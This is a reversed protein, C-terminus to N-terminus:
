SETVTSIIMEFRIDFAFIACCTIAFATSRSGISRDHSHARASAVAIMVLGSAMGARVFSFSRAITPFYTFYGHADDDGSGDSVVIQHRERPLERFVEQRLM